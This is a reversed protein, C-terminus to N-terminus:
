KKLIQVEKTKPNMEYKTNNIISLINLVQKLSDSKNVRLTIRKNKTYTNKQFECNFRDELFDLLKELEINNVDIFENGTEFSLDTEFKEIFIKDKEYVFSEGPIIAWSELRGKVSVLVKGTYLAIKADKLGRKQNVTFSTGLVTTTTTATKVKFVKMSDKVVKFFAEGTLSVGRTNEFREKYHIGSNPKLLVLSGDPLTIEKDLSSNNVVQINPNYVNLFFYGTFIVALVAAAGFVKYSLTRKRKWSRKSIRKKFAKWSVEVETKPVEKCDAEWSVEM